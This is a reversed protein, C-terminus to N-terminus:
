REELLQKVLAKLEAVETELATNKRHLEQVGILAVRAVDSAALYRNEREGDIMASGVDFAAVFDEAVPGIHREDTGRYTWSQLSMGSVKELLEGADLHQFNEKFERSSGSVWIGGESLYAGNGNTSNTGIHLPYDVGDACGDRNIGVRGSSDSDYFIVTFETDICVGNGYAMSYRAGSQIENLTGGLITSATARAANEQGGVVVSWDGGATNGAGGGM